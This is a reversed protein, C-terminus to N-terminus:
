DHKTILSFRNSKVQEPNSQKSSKNLMQELDQLMKATDKILVEAFQQQNSLDKHVQLAVEETHDHLWMIFEGILTILEENDLEINM